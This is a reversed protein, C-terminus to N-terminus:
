MELYYMHEKGDLIATFLVLIWINGHFNTRRLHLSINSVNELHIMLVRCLCKVCNTGNNSPHPSCVVFLVFIIILVYNKVITRIILERHKLIFNWFLVDESTMCHNTFFFTSLTSRAERTFYKGCGINITLRLHM